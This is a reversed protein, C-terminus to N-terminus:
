LFSNGCEKFLESTRALLKKFIRRLARGPHPGIIGNEEFIYSWGGYGPLDLFRYKAELITEFKNWTTPRNEIEM